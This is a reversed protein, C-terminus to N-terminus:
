LRPHSGSRRLWFNLAPWRALLLVGARHLMVGVGTGLTNTVIDTLGSYRTPLFAQLFEIVLSIAGGVVIAALSARKMKCVVTFYLSLFFGLPIFGEVNLICNKWYNRQTHFEQWPPEFLLQDVVVYHKPIDLDTGPKIANHIINGGHENFPYLALAQEPEILMFAQRRIWDEYHRAVQPPSFQSSYIALGRMQGPWSSDRLPSNSLILQGRLDSTSLGFGPATTIWHGDVYVSTDQGDSTVTIFAQRRRFVNAVRMQMQSKHRAPNEVGRQLVLDTFDQRMSFERTNSSDYFTLISGTTWTLAPELWAELSCSPGGYSGLVFTRSSLATGHKGFRLANENEVWTVENTPPHFPWLGAVLTACLTFLYLVSIAQRLFHLDSFPRNITHRSPPSLDNDESTPHPASQTTHPGTTDCM